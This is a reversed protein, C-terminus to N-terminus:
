LGDVGHRDLWHLLVETDSQSRFAVGDAALEARLERYNYIEGNFVIVARGDPTAMPQHGGASHDIGSLPRVGLPGGGGPSAWDGGGGPGRTAQMPTMAAGRRAADGLRGANVVGCFGCM